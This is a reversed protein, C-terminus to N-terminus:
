SCSVRQISVASRPRTPWELGKRQGQSGTSNVATGGNHDSSAAPVLGSLSARGNFVDDADGGLKAQLNQLVDANKLELLTWRSRKSDRVTTEDCHMLVAPWWAKSAYYPISWHRM